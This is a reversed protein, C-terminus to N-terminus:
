MYSACTSDGTAEVIIMHRDYIIVRADDILSTELKNVIRSDYDLIMNPEYYLGSTNFM